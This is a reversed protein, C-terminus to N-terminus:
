AKVAEGDDWVGDHVVIGEYVDGNAFTFTGKEYKFDPSWLGVYKDGNKWNMTGQGCKENKEWNGQYVNGNAYTCKGQGEMLDNIFRGTYRDGNKFIMTGADDHKLDDLYRGRYECGKWPGNTWKYVALDRRDRMYTGINGSYTGNSFPLDVVTEFAAEKEAESAPISTHIPPKLEYGHSGDKNTNRKKRANLYPDSGATTAAKRKKGATLKTLQDFIVQGSAVDPREIYLVQQLSLGDRNYPTGDESVGLSKPPFRAKLHLNTLKGKRIDYSAWAALWKLQEASAPAPEAGIFKITAPYFTELNVGNEIMDDNATAISKTVPASAVAKVKKSM